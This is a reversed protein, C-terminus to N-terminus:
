LHVATRGTLRTLAQAVLSRHCCNVDAEFCMLAVVGRGNAIVEHLAAQQSDLHKRYHEFFTALDGDARLRHRMARPAGLERRHYYRIGAAGLRRCLATKSFGPKRSLPLERVDVLTEVNNRALLELFADPDRGEYGLTVLGTM